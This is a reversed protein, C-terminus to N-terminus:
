QHMGRLASAADIGLNFLRAAWVVPGVLITDDDQDIQIHGPQDAAYYWHDAKNLARRILLEKHHEIAYIGGDSLDQRSTDVLCNSGCPLDPTMADDFVLIVFCYVPNLKFAELFSEGFWACGTPSYGSTRSRIPVPWPQTDVAHLAAYEFGHGPKSPDARRPAEESLIEAETCELAHAFDSLRSVSLHREGLELRSVYSESLGVREALQALSLGKSQRFERIRNAHAPM